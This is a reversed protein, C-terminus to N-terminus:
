GKEYKQKSYKKQYVLHQLFVDLGKMKVKIGCAKAQLAAVAAKDVLIQLAATDDEDRGLVYAGSDKVFVAPGKSLAAIIDSAIPDVVCIKKGIMQAMDDLQAELTKGLESWAIAASTIVPKAGNLTKSVEEIVDAPMPIEEAKDGKYNRECIEELLKAKAYADDRDTGAIVVGHYKMLVTHAGSEMAAKVNDKLKKQGPLGYESVAIGGLREKEEDTIKLNEFGAIGLASAYVQHTHIVFGAEPFTKYAVAHVGREGSPKNPGRWEETELNYIAHDEDKIQDYGIGSPTILFESDSIRESINGWTRAVLGEELLTLGMATVNSRAIKEDNM